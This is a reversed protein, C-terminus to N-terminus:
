PESWTWCRLERPARQWCVAALAQPGPRLDAVWLNRAATHGGEPAPDWIGQGSCKRLAEHRVWMAAFDRQRSHPPRDRLRQAQRDGFARRAVASPDGRRRRAEADIGVQGAQAFAYLAVVGSHSLNFAIASASGPATLSPKGHASTAFRLARPECELYTGLLDRLVGRSRAWLDGARSSLFRAARDREDASLSATAAQPVASLDAAWVHLAGAALEPKRPGAPWRLTAADGRPLPASIPALAVTGM